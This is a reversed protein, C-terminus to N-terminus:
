SGDCTLQLPKGNTKRAPPKVDECYLLNTSFRRTGSDRFGVEVTNICSVDLVRGEEVEEGQSATLLRVVTNSPKLPRVRRLLWTMQDQARYTGEATDLYVDESLHKSPDYIVSFAM